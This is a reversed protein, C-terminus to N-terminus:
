KKGLLQKEEETLSHLFTKHSRHPIQNVIKYFANRMLRKERPSIKDGALFGIVAYDKQGAILSLLQTISIHLKGNPLILTVAKGSVSKIAIGINVWRNNEIM